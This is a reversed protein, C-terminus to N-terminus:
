KINNIFTVMECASSLLQEAKNSPISGLSLIIFYFKKNSEIRVQINSIESKYTGALIGNIITKTDAENYVRGNFGIKASDISNVPLINSKVGNQIRILHHEEDYQLANVMFSQTANFVEESKKDKRSFLGM